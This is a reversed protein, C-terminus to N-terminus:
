SAMLQRMAYRVLMSHQMAPHPNRTMWGTRSNVFFAIGGVHTLYGTTGDRTDDNRGNHYNCCTIINGPATEGGESWPTIHHMQCYMAGRSCNPAGCVPNMVEAMHRLKSDAFRAEYLNVAGKKPHILMVHGNNRLIAKAVEAGTVITGDSRTIKVEDARGAIIDDLEDLMIGITVSVTEKAVGDKLLDFFADGMKHQDHSGHHQRMSNVLPALQSSPATVSLTTMTESPNRVRARPSSDVEEPPNLESVRQKALKAVAEPATGSLELM